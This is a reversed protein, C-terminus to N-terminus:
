RKERGVTGSIQDFFNIGHALFEIQDSGKIGGRSFDIGIM